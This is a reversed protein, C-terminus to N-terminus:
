IIKLKQCKFAPYLMFQKNTTPELNSHWARGGVTVVDRTSTSWHFNLNHYFIIFIIHNATCLMCVQKPVWLVKWTHSPIMRSFCGLQPWYSTAPWDSSSHNSEKINCHESKDLIQCTLPQRISLQAAHVILPVKHWTAMHCSVNYSDM